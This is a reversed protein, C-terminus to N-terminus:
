KLTISSGRLAKELQSKDGAKLWDADLIYKGQYCGFGCLEGFVTFYIDMPQYRSASPIEINNAKLIEILDYFKEAIHDTGLTQSIM